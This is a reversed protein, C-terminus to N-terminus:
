TITVEDNLRVIEAHIGSIARERLRIECEPRRGLLQRGPMLRFVQGPLDGQLVLLAPATTRARTLVDSVDQEELVVDTTKRSLSRISKTGPETKPVSKLREIM